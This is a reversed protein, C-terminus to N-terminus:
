KKTEETYTEDAQQTADLLLERPGVVERRRERACWRHLKALTELMAAQETLALDSFLDEVQEHKNRRPRAM